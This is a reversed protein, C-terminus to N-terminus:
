ASDWGKYEDKSTQLMETRSLRDVLEKVGKDKIDIKNYLSIFSEPWYCNITSNVRYIKLEPNFIKSYASLQSHTKLVFDCKSLILSCILGEKLIKRSNIATRRLSNELDMRENKKQKGIKEVLMKINFFHDLHISQKNKKGYNNQGYSMVEYNKYIKNVKEIIEKEDSSIYIADYKNRKLEYNVIRLYEDSSIHKVWKVRNKDCGRYHLGLVKKKEFKKTFDNVLRMIEDSINFYKNFYKNALKFNSKYSFLKKRDENPIGRGCLRKHTSHIEIYKNTEGKNNLTPEYALKISNGIVEFNPYNGYNHSYYQININIGKDFYEKKLLPIIELIYTFSSFFGKNMTTAPSLRLVEIPYNLWNGLIANKLYISPKKCTIEKLVM